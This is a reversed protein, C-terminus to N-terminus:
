RLTRKDDLHMDSALRISKQWKLEKMVIFFAVAVFSGAYACLATNDQPTRGGDIRELVRLLVLTTGVSLGGIVVYGLGIVFMNRRRRQPRTVWLLLGWSGSAWNGLMIALLTTLGMLAGIAEGEMDLARM